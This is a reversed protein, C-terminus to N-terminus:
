VEEFSTKYYDQFWDAFHQVGDEINTEPTYGTIEILDNIEAWTDKLDGPQLEMFVKDVNKKFSKELCEIFYLLQVPKNNGINLIQYKQYSPKTTLIAINKVIDDVYTFDRKMNGHNFVKIKENRVIANAFLFPAMDPRGWPGYVTFFRLGITNFNYLESYAHAMLENTKKTVAYMSVPSDVNQKTSFPQDINKGYVSSSSAYLLKEPPFEKCCELVNLFGVINNEVYTYPNELSFRVGAQAALNIVIDFSNNRFLNLLSTKDTIDLLYFSYNLKTISKLQSNYIISEKLIGCEKLRDRKLEIDYYDNLNDIGVVENGEDLLTQTLHFGIFGAAGTILIKM